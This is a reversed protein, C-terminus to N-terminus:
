LAYEYLCGEWELYSPSTPILCCDQFLFSGYAMNGRRVNLGYRTCTVKARQISYVKVFQPGPLITNVSVKPTFM